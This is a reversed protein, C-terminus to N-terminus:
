CLGIGENLFKWNRNFDNILTEKKERRWKKLGKERYIAEQITSFFEYCIRIRYQVPASFSSPYKHNVHELLRNYLGSTVGVYLTTKNKNTLIYVCGRRKM